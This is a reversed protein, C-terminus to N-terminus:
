LMKCRVRIFIGIQVMKDWKDRPLYCFCVDGILSCYEATQHQLHDFATPHVYGQELPMEAELKIAQLLREFLLLTSKHSM